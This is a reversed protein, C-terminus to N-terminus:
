RARGDPVGAPSPGHGLGLATGKGHDVRSYPLATTLERCHHAIMWHCWHSVCNGRGKTPEPAVLVKDLGQYVRAPVVTRRM